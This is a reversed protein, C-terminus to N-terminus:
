AIRQTNSHVATCVCPCVCCDRATHELNRSGAKRSESITASVCTSVQVGLLADLRIVVVRESLLSSTMTWELHRRVELSSSSFVTPAQQHSDTGNQEEQDPASFVFVRVSALTVVLAVPVGLFVV